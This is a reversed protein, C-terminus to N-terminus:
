RDGVKRVALGVAIAAAPGMQNVLDADVDKPSYTVASPQPHGGLTSREMLLERLGSAASGGALYIQDIKEEQTTARFFDFTKPDRGINEATSQIVPTDPLTGEIQEDQKLTEATKYPLGLDKQLADTALNEGVAIDRNFLSNSGRIINVNTIAAGLNLLAV